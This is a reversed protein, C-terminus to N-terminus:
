RRYINKSINFLGTTTLLLGLIPTLFLVLATVIIHKEM